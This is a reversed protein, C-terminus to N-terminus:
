LLTNQNSIKKILFEKELVFSINTTDKIQFNLYANQGKIGKPAISLYQNIFSGPKPLLNHNKKLIAKQVLEFTLRFNELDSEEFCFSVIETFIRTGNKESKKGSFIFLIIETKKFFNYWYSDEWKVYFEHLKLLRFTMRELPMKSESDLPLSKLIYNCNVSKHKTCVEETLKVIIRNSINKPIMNRNLNLKYLKNFLEIQSYGFFVRCNSIIENLLEKKGM